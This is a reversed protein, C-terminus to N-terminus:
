LAELPDPPKTVVPGSANIQNRLSLLRLVDLAEKRRARRWRGWHKAERKLLTKKRRSAM